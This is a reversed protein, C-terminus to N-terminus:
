VVSACKQFLEQSTVIEIFQEIGFDRENLNRSEYAQRFKALSFKRVGKDAERVTLKYSGKSKTM